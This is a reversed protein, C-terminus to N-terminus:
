AAQGSQQPHARIYSVLSKYDILRIGTKAGKQRLCFSKVPPKNKNRETPLVLENIASRAMGTYPCLEGAKPLRLFEPEILTAVVRPPIIVAETTVGSKAKPTASKM